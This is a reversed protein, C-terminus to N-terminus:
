RSIFITEIEPYTKELLKALAKVGFTETLYHGALIMEMGINEAAITEGWDAEGTVFVKCGSSAADKAFVAAGGSCVGIKGKPITFKIEGIEVTRKKPSIGTVGIINGHYSFAPSINKLGMFRALQWNNGVKKNADLPLHSAYLALRSRIAEGIVNYEGGTIRKIGGGWSIGHHVVLLQAGQECAARVSQLSADVAFAVRAIDIGSNEIQLGNNSVDDFKNSQLVEDLWKVIKELKM